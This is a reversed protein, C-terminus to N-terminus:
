PAVFGIQRHTGDCFPKKGSQGCRCLATESGFYLTTGDPSRVECPGEVRLPGDQRLRVRVPGVTERPLEGTLMAFSHSVFGAQKHSSDCYPKNKSQGCRCFWAESRAALLNGAADRIEIEGRCEYPGDPVINMVNV